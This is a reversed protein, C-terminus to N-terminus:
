WPYDNYRSKFVRKNKHDFVNWYGYRDKEENNVQGNKEEFLYIHQDSYSQHGGSLKSQVRHQLHMYFRLTFIHYKNYSVDMKQCFFDKDLYYFDNILHSFIENGPYSAIIGQYIHTDSLVTYLTNSKIHDFMNNFNQLPVTKIDIYIGGTKYLVCYRFLDAKHAGTSLNKFISVIENNYHNELFKICDEDSNYKISYDSAYKNINDWVKQPVSAKDYHTLHIIKPIYSSKKQCFVKQKTFQKYYDDYFTIDPNMYLM